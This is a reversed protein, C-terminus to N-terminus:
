SFISEFAKIKAEELHRASVKLIKKRIVEIKKESIGSEWISSDCEVLGDVFCDIGSPNTVIDVTLLKYDEKVFKTGHDERISGLGRTSVGIQVGGEVLGRVINGTPTNLIKAKGFYDNGKKVLETILHSARDPNVSPSNPHSLEGIARSTSVYKDRYENIERELIAAPYIRGNRNKKEAQAFIGSIYFDKDKAETIIQNEEEYETIIFMM